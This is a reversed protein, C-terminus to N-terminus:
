QEKIIGADVIMPQRGDSYHKLTKESSVAGEGDYIKQNITDIVGGEVYGYEDVRKSILIGDADRTEEIWTQMLGDKNKVVAISSVTEEVPDIEKHCNPCIM